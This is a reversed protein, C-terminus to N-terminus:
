SWEWVVAEANGEADQNYEYVGAIRNLRAWPEATTVYYIAGRYNVGGDETMTGVGTGKWTATEGGAGMVIGQGEGYITGDPRMVAAYTGLDTTEIGLLRGQARFTTEMRPGGEGPLVRVGITMGHEEGLKDGLM